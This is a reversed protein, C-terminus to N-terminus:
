TTERRAAFWVRGTEPGPATMEHLSGWCAVEKLGANGLCTRIEDLSYGREKHEEDIRIWAAGQNIFGVVQKTAVNTEFDYTNIHADFFGATDQAVFFPHSRWMVALGCITNMDFIFLGGHKLAKLVGSFTEELERLHLLYNLSDYWCTVLDFEDEFSLSRMDGQVFRVSPGAEDARRRAIDLMQPSMDLGTVEFGQRAMAFAFTGEGCAIDLIMAPQANLTRLTAPLLDAMRRSYTPYPGNAYLNAFEEYIPM